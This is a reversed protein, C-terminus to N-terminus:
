SGTAEDASGVITFFKDLRTIEFVSRVRPQLGVLVIRRGARETERKVYVMTGVGSSDMFPVQSLDIRVTGTSHKVSKLLLERLEPATRLNVEGRVRLVPGGALVTTDVKLKRQGSSVAAQGLPVNCGKRGIRFEPVFFSM